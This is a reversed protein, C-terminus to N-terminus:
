KLGLRGRCAQGNPTLQFFANDENTKAWGHEILESLGAQFDAGDSGAWRGRQAEVNRLSVWGALNPRYPDDLSLYAFLADGEPVYPAKGPESM